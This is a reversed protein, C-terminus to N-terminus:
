NRVIFIEEVLTCFDRDIDRVFNFAVRFVGNRGFVDFCIAFQKNLRRNHSDHLRPLLDIMLSEHGFRDIM